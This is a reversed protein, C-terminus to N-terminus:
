YNIIRIRRHGNHPRLLCRTCLGISLAIGCCLTTEVRKSKATQYGSFKHTISANAECFRIKAEM